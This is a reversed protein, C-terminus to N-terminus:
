APANVNAAALNTSSKGATLITQVNARGATLAEVVPLIRDLASTKRTLEDKLTKDLAEATKAVEAKLELVRTSSADPGTLDMEVVAPLLDVKGQIANEAATPSEGSSGGNKLMFGAVAIGIFSIFALFVYFYYKMEKAEGTNSYNYIEYASYVFLIFALGLTIAPGIM